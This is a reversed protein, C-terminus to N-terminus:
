PPSSRPTACPVAPPECGSIHRGDSASNSTLSSLHTYTEEAPNDKGTHRCPGAPSPSCRGRQDTSTESEPQRLSRSAAAESLGLSSQVVPVDRLQPREWPAPPHRKACAAAFWGPPAPPQHQASKLEGQCRRHGSSHLAISRHWQISSNGKAVLIIQKTPGGRCHSRM